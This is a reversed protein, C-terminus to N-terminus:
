RSRKSKPRTTDVPVDPKGRLERMINDTSKGLTLIGYVQQFPDQQDAKVVVLRGREAEFDLVQGSRIGLRDRLPKPIM